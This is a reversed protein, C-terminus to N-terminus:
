KEFVHTKNSTETELFMSIQKICSRDKKYRKSQQCYTYNFHILIKISTLISSQKYKEVHIICLKVNLAIKKLQEVDLM